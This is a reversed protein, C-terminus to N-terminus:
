RIQDGKEYDLTKMGWLWFLIDLGNVLIFVALTKKAHIDAYETLNNSVLYKYIALGELAVLIVLGFIWGCSLMKRTSTSTKILTSLNFLFTVISVVAAGIGIILMFVEFSLSWQFPLFMGAWVLNGPSNSYRQGWVLRM